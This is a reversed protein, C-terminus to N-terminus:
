VGWKRAHYCIAQASVHLDAAVAARTEGARLRREIEPLLDKLSWPTAAEPQGHPTTMWKPGPSGHGRKRPVYGIRRILDARAARKFVPGWARDDHPEIGAERAALVLDEGPFESHRSIYHLLFAYAAEAFGPVAREAKGAVQAMGADRAARWGYDIGLQM